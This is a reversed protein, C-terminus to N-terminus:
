RRCDAGYGPYGECRLAACRCMGMREPRVDAAVETGFGKNEEIFKLRFQRIEAEKKEMKERAAEREGETKATDNAERYLDMSEACLRENENRFRAWAESLPTGKLDYYYSAPVVAMEFTGNELLFDVMASVKGNNFMVYYFDATDQRGEFTFKGDKVLGEDIVKTEWNELQVLRVTDGEEAGEITGTLVFSKDSSGCSAM